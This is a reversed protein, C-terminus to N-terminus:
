QGSTTDARLVLVQGIGLQARSITATIAGVAGDVGRLEAAGTTLRTNTQVMLGVMRPPPAISVLGLAGFFAVVASDDTVTLVDPATIDTSPGDSRGAATQVPQDVAVGAYALATGVAGKDSSFRWDYTAAERGDAIKMYTAKVMRNGLKDRVVLRWGEPAEIVPVGVADVSVLLVDGRRSEPMPVTLIRGTDTAATTNGRLWIGTGAAPPGAIEVDSAFTASSTKGSGDQAAVSYRHTSHCDASTDVFSTSTTSDLPVGDRSVLYRLVEVDDSAAPWLLEVQCGTTVSAAVASPPTPAAVDAVPTPLTITAHHYAKATDSSALVVLGSKATGPSKSSVPDNVAGAGSGMLVEGRGGPFAVEALPSRKYFVGLGAAASFLYVQDNSKDIALIPRTHGDAVTGAPVSSWSGRTDRVLVMVQPASATVGRLDGLSTKVAALVQDGDPSPAVQLSLHDDAVGFGAIATEISWVDEPDGDSHVAFTYRGSEQDSWMVGIKDDFSVLSSIDDQTIATDPAPPQYPAGWRRDGSTTHAVWVQGGQTYTIWLQGTSDKAISGSELGGGAVTEVAAALSWQGRAENYAFTSVRLDSAPARSAVYLQKGDWLVDATSNLRSDVVVGPDRWGDQVTDDLQFIRVTAGDSGDIEAGDREVLLGWWEGYAYWLKSQPKDATPSVVQAPYRFDKQQTVQPKDAHAALTGALPLGNLGATALATAM